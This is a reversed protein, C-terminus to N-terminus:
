TYQAMMVSIYATQEVSLERDIRSQLSEMLSDLFRDKKYEYALRDIQEREPLAYWEAYTWGNRTCIKLIDLEEDTFRKPM